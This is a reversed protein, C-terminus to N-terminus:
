GRGRRAQRGRAPSFALNQYSESIKEGAGPIKEGAGNLDPIKEGAGEALKNDNPSFALNQYSESVAPLSSFSIQIKPKKAYPIAMSQIQEVLKKADSAIELNKEAIEAAGKQLLGMQMRGKHIRERIDGLTDAVLDQTRGAMTKNKKEMELAQRRMEAVKELLPAAQLVLPSLPGEAPIAKDVPTETSVTETPVDNQGLLGNGEAFEEGRLDFNEGPIAEDNKNNDKKVNDGDKREEDKEVSRTKVNDEDKREEDKEVEDKVNDEDKREEDKVNDEDKKVNDEDKKVSEPDEDKEVDEPDKDKKVSETDPDEDKKVEKKVDKKADKKFGERVDEPDEGKKDGNKMGEPDEGKKDGNKMDEPDEGKKDGHKKM